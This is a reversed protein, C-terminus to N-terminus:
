VIECGLLKRIADRGNQRLDRSGIGAWIGVPQPPSDIQDWTAGNWQFWADKEQDFIYLNRNEPHLQAFMTTAWATGGPLVDERIVTVAYCAESWAVQYYNRQLLRSIYPRRPPTKGLALAAKELAGNSIKLQDDDLRVLQSEVAQSKHGPFSWHIVEHGFAEACRGWELDAGDAGGSLCVNTKNKLIEMPADVSTENAPFSWIM